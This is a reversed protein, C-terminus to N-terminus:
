PIILFPLGKKVTYAILYKLPASRDGNRFITHPAVAKDQYSQGATFRKLEEGVYQSEAVGELIYNHAVAPHHHPPLGVAPPYTTLVLRFDEGADNVYSELTTRIIGDPSVVTRGSAPTAALSRCNALAAAAGLLGGLVLRRRIDEEIRPLMMEGALSLLKSLRLRVM